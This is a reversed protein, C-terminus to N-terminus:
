SPASAGMVLFGTLEVKTVTASKDGDAQRFAADNWATEKAPDAERANAQTKLATMWASFEAKSLAGDADKDYAGFRQDVVAAIQTPTPAQAPTTRAPMQASTDAAPPAGAPDQATQTVPMQTQAFVPAAIAVAGALLITKFM